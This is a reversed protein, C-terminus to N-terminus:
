KLNHSSHRITKEHNVELDHHNEINPNKNNIRHYSKKQRKEIKEKKILHKPNHYTKYNLTQM